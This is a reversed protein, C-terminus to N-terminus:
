DIIKTWTGDDNRRFWNGEKPNYYVNDVHHVVRVFKDDKRAYYRGNQPNYTMNSDYVDKDTYQRVNRVQARSPKYGLEEEMERAINKKTDIHRAIRAKADEDMKNGWTVSM